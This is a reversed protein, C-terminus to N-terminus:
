FHLLRVELKVRDVILIKTNSFHQVKQLGLAASKVQCVCNDVKDFPNKYIYEMKIAYNFLARFNIFASAKTGLALGKKDVTLKWDNIMKAILKDIRYNKCIPLIYINFDDTIKVVSLEKVEMKKYEIYENFLEQITMKKIPMESKDKLGHILKRELNKANDLGYATRTLQKPEGSDSIYNIRM